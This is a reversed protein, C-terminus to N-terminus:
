CGRGFPRVKDIMAALGRRWEEEASRSELWAVAVWALGDGEFAIDSSVLSGMDSDQGQRLDVRFAKFNDAELLALRGDIDISVIM